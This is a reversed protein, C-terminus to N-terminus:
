VGVRKGACFRRNRATPQFASSLSLGGCVEARDREYGIESASMIMSTLVRGVRAHPLPQIIDCLAFRADLAAVAARNHKM